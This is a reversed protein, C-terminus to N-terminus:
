RPGPPNEPWPIQDEPAGFRRTLEERLALRARLLRVKVNGPRIGLIEATEKGSFGELDRLVFVARYSEPLQALAEELHERTEQLHLLHEPSERWPAVFAPFAPRLEEPAEEEYPELPLGKRKRLIKLAHNATIRALWHGFPSDGRFGDLKEIASLFGEQVAEEADHENRLIRRVMRYLRASHRDVLTEFAGYDGARAREVLAADPDHLVDSSMATGLIHPQPRLNYGAPLGSIIDKAADM